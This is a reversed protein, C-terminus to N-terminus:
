KRFNWFKILLFIKYEKNFLNMYIKDNRNSNYNYGM